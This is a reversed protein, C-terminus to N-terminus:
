KTRQAPVRNRAAKQGPTQGPLLIYQFPPVTESPKASESNAATTVTGEPMFEVTNVAPVTVPQGNQLDRHEPIRVVRFLGLGPVTVEKGSKLEEAIAPGLAQFFKTADEEKLKTAKAIKQPLTGAESEKESQAQGYTVLVIGLFAAMGGLLLHHIRM